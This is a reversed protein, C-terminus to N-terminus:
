MQQMLEKIKREAFVSARMIFLQREDDDMFSAEDMGNSGGGGGGGGNLTMMEINNMTSHLSSSVLIPKCFLKTLRKSLQTAFMQDEESNSGILLSSSPDSKYSALAPTAIVLPGMVPSSSSSSSSSSSAIEWGMWILISSKMFTITGVVKKDARQHSLTNPDMDLSNHDEPIPISFPVIQIMPATPEIPKSETALKEFAGSVSQASNSSTDSENM